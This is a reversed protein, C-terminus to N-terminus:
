RRRFRDAMHAVRGVADQAACFAKQASTRLFEINRNRSIRVWPIMIRRSGFKLKYDGGGILEFTSMGREKCYQIANWVVLENPRVQSLHRWSAAGWYFMIQNMAAFISTAICIGDKNRARLMLLNGSPHVLEILRKIREVSFPPVSNKVAFVHKLQAYHERAFSLDSAEEIRVDCKEAKRICQRCERRMNKWLQDEALSVDVEFSEFMLCELALHACDEPVMRRDMLEVHHCKLDDFAFDPLAEIAIRRSVGPKLNFGIYPTSWGPFPSGLIKFGFKKVILGTFYGLTEDDERLAAVVPEANQTRAIFNIWPQTQFIIRDPFADLEKEDISAFDVRHFSPKL